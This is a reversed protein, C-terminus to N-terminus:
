RAIQRLIFISIPFIVASFKYILKTFNSLQNSDKYKKYLFLGGFISSIMFFITSVTLINSHTDDTLLLMSLIGLAYTIGFLKLFM